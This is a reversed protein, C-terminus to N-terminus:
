KIKSVLLINFNGKISNSLIGSKNWISNISVYGIMLSNIKLVLTTIFFHAKKARRTKMLKFSINNNTSSRKLRACINNNANTIQAKGYQCELSDTAYGAGNWLKKNCLDFEHHRHHDCHHHITKTTDNVSSLCNVKNGAPVMNDSIKVM